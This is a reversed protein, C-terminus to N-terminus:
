NLILHSFRVFGSYARSLISDLINFTSLLLAQDEGPCRTLSVMHFVPHKICLCVSNGWYYWGASVVVLRMKYVLFSLSQRDSDRLGVRRGWPSCYM